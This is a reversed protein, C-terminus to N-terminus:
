EESGPGEGDVTTNANGQGQRSVFASAPLRRAQDVADVTEQRIARVETLKCRRIDSDDTEIDDISASLCEEFTIAAISATVEQGRVFAFGSALASRIRDITDIQEASRDDREETM